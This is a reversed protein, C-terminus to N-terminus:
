CPIREKWPLFRVIEQTGIAASIRMHQSFLSLETTIASIHYPFEKPVEAVGDDALGCTVTNKAGNYVFCSLWLM